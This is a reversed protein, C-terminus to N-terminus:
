KRMRLDKPSTMAIVPEMKMRMRRQLTDVDFDNKLACM